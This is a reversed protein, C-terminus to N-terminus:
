YYKSAAVSAHAAITLKIYWSAPLTVAVVQTLGGVTNIAASVGPTGITTYTTNDPSVLIAVTAANATGDFVCEVFVTIQRGPLTTPNQKATGSVWSGLDPLTGSAITGLGSTLQDARPAKGGTTAAGGLTLVGTIDGDGDVTLDGGEVRVDGDFTHVGGDDDYYYAQDGASNVVIDVQEDVGPKFPVAEGTPQNSDDTFTITDGQTEDGNANTIVAPYSAGVAM